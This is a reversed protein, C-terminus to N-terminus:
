DIRDGRLHMRRKQGSTLKSVPAADDQLNGCFSEGSPGICRVSIDFKILVKRCFVCPVSCQPNATSDFRLINISGDMQGRVYQILRHKPIGKKRGIRIKEEIM